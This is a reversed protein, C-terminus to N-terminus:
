RFGSSADGSCIRLSSRSQAWLDTSAPESKDAVMGFYIWFRHGMKRDQFTVTLEGAKGRMAGYSVMLVGRVVVRKGRFERYFVMFM